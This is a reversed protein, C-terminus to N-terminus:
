SVPALEFFTDARALAATDTLVDGPRSGNALLLGGWRMKLYEACKSLTGAVPDAGSPDEDSLVTIGWLKKEAMRALFGEQRMWYTWYDLYRKADASVSYWYLPSVVVIDTAALTAELLTRENGGPEPRVGDHRTDVFDPLKLDRLSLWHQEADAPLTGAARLALTETNGGDRASASLFLFRRETM